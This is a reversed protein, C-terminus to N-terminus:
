VRDIEYSSLQVSVTQNEQWEIAVEVLRDEKPSIGGEYIGIMGSVVPVTRPFTTNLPYRNSIMAFRKRGPIVLSVLDSPKLGKTGVM